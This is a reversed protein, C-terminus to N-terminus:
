DIEANESPSINAFDIHAANVFYKNITIMKDSFFYMNLLEYHM